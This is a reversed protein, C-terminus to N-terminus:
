SYHQLHDVLLVLLVLQKKNLKPSFKFSVRSRKKSSLENKTGLVMTKM